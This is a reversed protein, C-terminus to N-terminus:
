LLALSLTGRVISDVVFSCELLQGRRRALHAQRLIQTARHRCSREFLRTLPSPDLRAYFAKGEFSSGGCWVANLLHEFRNRSRYRDKLRAM